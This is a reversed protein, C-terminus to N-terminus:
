QVPVCTNKKKAALQPVQGGLGASDSESDSETSMMNDWTQQYAVTACGQVFLDSLCRHRKLRRSMYFWGNLIIETVM